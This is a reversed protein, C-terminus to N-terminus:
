SSIALMAAIQMTVIQAAEATCLGKNYGTLLLPILLDDYVQCFIDQIDLHGGENDHMCTEICAHMYHRQRGTINVSRRYLKHHSRALLHQHSDGGVPLDQAQVVVEPQL